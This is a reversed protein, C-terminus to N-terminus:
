TPSAMLPSGSSRRPARPQGQSSYRMDRTHTHTRAHTYEICKDRCSYCPLWSHPQMGIASNNLPPTLPQIPSETKWSLYDRRHPFAFLRSAAAPPGAPCSFVYPSVRLPLCVTCVCVCGGSDHQNVRFDDDLRHRKCSELRRDSAVEFRPSVQTQGEGLVRWWRLAM